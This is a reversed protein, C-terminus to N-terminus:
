PRVRPFRLTVVQFPRLELVAARPTTGLVNPRLAVHELPDELLDVVSPEGVAADVRVTAVARGGLAEYMRVVLDGSRDEALKVAEVVVGEGDVTV